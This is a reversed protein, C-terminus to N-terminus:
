RGLPRTLEYTVAVYGRDSNPAVVPIGAYNEQIRDYGCEASVHEGFTRKLAAGVTLANGGNYGLGTLSTVASLTAYSTELRVSWTRSIEWGGASSVTDSHFAGYLGGGSAITHLYSATVDGRKGLWEVNIVGSPSWIHHSKASNYAESMHQAGGSVSISFAPTVYVTYFPAFSHVQTEIPPNAPSVDDRNYDYTLGLYQSPSLRRSYFASAGKGSSDFLGVADSNPFDLRSYTGGVGIMANRAFQYSSAGEATDSMQEAFPAILVPATVPATGPAGATSFQYSTSFWNSTRLFFNQVNIAVHPSVRDQFTFSVNHDISNLETTRQYLTIAPRYTLVTQRLPTTRNLSIEPLISYAIDSVPRAFAGPLVNDIYASNVTLDSALYNSRTEAGTFNPYLTGTVAPPAMMVTNNLEPVGGGRAEPEVQSFVPLTALSVLLMVLGTRALMAPM